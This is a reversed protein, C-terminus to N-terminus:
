LGPSFAEPTTNRAISEAAPKPSIAWRAVRLCAWLTLRAAVVTATTRPRNAPRSQTCVPTSYADFMRLKRCFAEASISM